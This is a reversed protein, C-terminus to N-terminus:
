PGKFAVDSLSVVLDKKKGSLEDEVDVQEHKCNWCRWRIRTKGGVYYVAVTQKHAHVCKKSVLKM